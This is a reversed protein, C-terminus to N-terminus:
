PFDWVNPYVGFGQLDYFGRKHDAGLNGVESM